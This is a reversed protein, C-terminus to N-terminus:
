IDTFRGWRVLGKPIGGGFGITFTKGGDTETAAVDSVSEGAASGGRRRRTQTWVRFNGVFLEDGTGGRLDFVADVEIDVAIAFVSAGLMGM